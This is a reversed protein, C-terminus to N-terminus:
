TYFVTSTKQKNYCVSLFRLVASFANFGAGGVNGTTLNTEIKLFFMIQSQRQNRNIVPLVLSYFLKGRGFNHRIRMSALM